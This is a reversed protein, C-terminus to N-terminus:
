ADGGFMDLLAAELPDRYEPKDRELMGIIDCVKEAGSDEMRHGMDVSFTYGDLHFHEGLEAANDAVEDRSGYIFYTLFLSEDDMCNRLFHEKDRELGALFEETLAPNEEPAEDRIRRLDKPMAPNVLIRMPGFTQMVYFAGLSSAVFYDYRRSQVCDGLLAKMADRDTVPFEPADLQFEIGRRELAARLKQSASGGGHGLYGHVYLIRIM